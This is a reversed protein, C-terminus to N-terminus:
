LVPLTVGVLSGTVAVSMLDDANTSSTYDDNNDDDDDLPPFFSPLGDLLIFYLSIVWSLRM